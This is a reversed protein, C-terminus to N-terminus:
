AALLSFSSFPRSFNFFKSSICIFLDIQRVLILAISHKAGDIPMQDLFTAESKSRTATNLLLSLEGDDYYCYFSLSANQLMRYAHLHHGNHVLDKHNESRVRAVEKYITEGWQECKAEGQGRRGDGGRCRGV